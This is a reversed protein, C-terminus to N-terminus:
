FCDILLVMTVTYFEHMHNQEGNCCHVCFRLFLVVVHPDGVMLCHM